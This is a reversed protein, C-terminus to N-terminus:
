SEDVVHSRKLPDLKMVCGNDLCGCELREGTKSWRFVDPHSTNKQLKEHLDPTEWQAGPGSDGTDMLWNAHTDAAKNCQRIIHGCWETEDTRPLFTGCLYWRVLQDVVGGVPM